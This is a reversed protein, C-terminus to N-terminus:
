FERPFQSVFPYFLLLSVLYLEIDFPCFVIWVSLVIVLFFSNTMLHIEGNWCPTFIFSLLLTSLYRSRASLIPPSILQLQHKQSPEWRVQFSILSSSVLHLVSFMFVVASNFDALICVLMQSIQPSKWNSLSRHFVVSFKQSFTSYRSFSSLWLLLQHQKFSWSSNSFSNPSELDSSFDLGDLCCYLLFVTLISRM